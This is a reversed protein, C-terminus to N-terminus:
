LRNIFDIIENVKDIIVRERITCVDGICNGYQDILPRPNLKEIKNGPMFRALIFYDKTLYEEPVIILRNTKTMSKFYGDHYVCISGKPIRTRKNIIIDNIAIYICEKDM